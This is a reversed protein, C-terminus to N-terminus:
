NGNFEEKESLDKIYKYECYKHYDRENMCIAEQIIYNSIEVPIGFIYNIKGNDNEIKSLYRWDSTKELYTRLDLYCKPNILMIYPKEGVKEEYGELMLHMSNFICEKERM